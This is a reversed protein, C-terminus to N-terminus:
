FNDRKVSFFVWAEYVSKCLLVIGVLLVPNTWGVYRSLAWLLLFWVYQMVFQTRHIMVRASMPLTKLTPMIGRRELLLLPALYVLLFLISLLLLDQEWLQVPLQVLTMLVGQSTDWNDVGGLEILFVLALYHMVLTYVSLAIVRSAPQRYEKLHVTGPRGYKVPVVLKLYNLVLIASLLELWVLFLTDFLNWGLVAIGLFLLLNNLFISFFEFKQLSEPTITTM